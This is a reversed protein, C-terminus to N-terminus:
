LIIPSNCFCLHSKHSVLFYQDNIVVAIDTFQQSQIDFKLVGGCNPCQVMDNGGLLEVRSLLKKILLIVRIDYQVFYAYARSDVCKHM